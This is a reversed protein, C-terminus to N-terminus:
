IEKKGKEMSSKPERFGQLLEAWTVHTLKLDIKPEVPIGDNSSRPYSLTVVDGLKPPNYNPTRVEM